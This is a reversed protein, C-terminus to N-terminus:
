RISMASREAITVWFDRSPSQSPSVMTPACGLPANRGWTSRFVRTFPIGHFTSDAVNPKQIIAENQPERTRDNLNFEFFEWTRVPRIAGHHFGIASQDRRLCM